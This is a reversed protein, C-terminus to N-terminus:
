QLKQCGSLFPVFSVSELSQQEMGQDTKRLLQLQQMGDAGVPALLRGGVALQEILQDPITEPAATLIIADYPAREAWGVGGDSYRTHINQFRMTQLLKGTRQYLGEIRELTYVQEVLMALVAAQYGSGTGIELLKRPWVQQQEDYLAETMLAVIFPQSITQGFGIPLACDEYARNAMAEDVFLHRPMNRMVQLVQENRIGKDRLRQILQDRRRQSTMGIGLLRQQSATNM